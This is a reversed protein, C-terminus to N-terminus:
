RSNYVGVNHIGSALSLATGITQPIWWTHRLWPHRSTMMRHSLLDLVIPGLQAVAYISGNGAFPRLIPNVEQGQMSSVVRHTSWADFGAAGHQGITLALWERRRRQEASSKTAYSPTPAIPAPLVTFLAPPVAAPDTPLPGVVDPITQGPTFAIPVSGSRAFSTETNTGVTNNPTTVESGNTAASNAIAFLSASQAALAGPLVVVLVFALIVCRRVDRMNPRQAPKNNERPAIKFFWQGPPSFLSLALWHTM